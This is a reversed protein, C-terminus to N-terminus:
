PTLVFGARSLARAVTPWRWRPISEVASVEPAEIIIRVFVLGRRMPIRTGTHEVSTVASWRRGLPGPRAVASGQAIELHGGGHADAIAVGVSFRHKVRVYHPEAPASALVFPRDTSAPTTVM